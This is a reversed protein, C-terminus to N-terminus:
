VERNTPLTLHTYSVSIFGSLYADGAGTTDKVKSKLDLAPMSFNTSKNTFYIGKDGLTIISNKIGKKIFFDGAEKAQNYNEIKKGFYFEAETENPTFFDIYKFFKDEIKIAERTEHLKIKWFNKWISIQNGKRPIYVKWCDTPKSGYGIVNITVSIIESNYPFCFALWTTVAPNSAENNINNITVTDSLIGEAGNPTPLSTNLWTKPNDEAATNADIIAYKNAWYM